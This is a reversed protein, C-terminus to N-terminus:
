LNLKLLLEKKQQEIEQNNLDMIEDITTHIYHNLQENEYTYKKCWKCITYHYHMLIKEYWQLPQIESKHLYRTYKRCNIM